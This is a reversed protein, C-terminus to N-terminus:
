RSGLLSPDGNALTRLVEEHFYDTNEVVDAAARQRYMQESRELDEHLRSYLDSNRRGEEVRAENYLLIESVLLRAFRRAEEHADGAPVPAAEAAPESAAEVAAGAGAAAEAEAGGLDMSAPEVRPPAWAQSPRREVPAPSAPAAPRGAGRMGALRATAVHVLIQLADLDLPGTGDGEGADAYLVGVVRGGSTLPLAACSEPAQAQLAMSVRRTEETGESVVVRGERVAGAVPSDQDLPLSTQRIDGVAGDAQYGGATWGCAQGQRVVFLATRSAFRMAGGVLANLLSIQDATTALDEVAERLTALDPGEAGTEAGQELVEGIEGNLPERLPEIAEALLDSLGREMRDRVAHARHDLAAQVLELIKERPAQGESM